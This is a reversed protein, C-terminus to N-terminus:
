DHSIILSSPPSPSEEKKHPAKAVLTATRGSNKITVLSHTCSHLKKINKNIEYGRTSVLLISTEAVYWNIRGKGSLSHAAKSRKSVVNQIAFPPQV